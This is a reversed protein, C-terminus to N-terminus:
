YKKKKKTSNAVKAPTRAPGSGSGGPRHPANGGGGGPKKGDRRPAAWGAKEAPAGERPRPKFRKQEPRQEAYDGSKKPAPRAIADIADVVAGVDRAGGDKVRVISAEKNPATRTTYDFQDAFESVIEFRTERDEVRIAGIESKTVGGAKCILPLLWRPDANRDSGINIRFWTM